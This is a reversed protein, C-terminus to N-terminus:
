YVTLLDAAEGDVTEKAIKSLQCADQAAGEKEGRNLEYRVSMTLRIRARHSSSADQVYPCDFQMPIWLVMLRLLDGM